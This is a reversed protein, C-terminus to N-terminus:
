YFESGEFLVIISAFAGQLNTKTPKGEGQKWWLFSQSGWKIIGLNHWRLEVTNCTNWRRVHLGHFKPQLLRPFSSERQCLSKPTSKVPPNGKVNTTKLSIGCSTHLHLMPKTPTEAQLFFSTQNHFFLPSLIEMYSFPQLFLVSMQPSFLRSLLRWYPGLAEPSM